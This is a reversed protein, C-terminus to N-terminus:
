QRSSRLAIWTWTASAADIAAFLLLVSGIKGLVVMLLMFAAAYYRAPVTWLYFREIGARAALLYYAGIISALMGAFRIWFDDGASLGVLNLLVHPALMFGLGVFFTLYLGFVFVSLKAKSM